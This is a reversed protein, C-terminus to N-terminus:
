TNKTVIVIDQFSLYVNRGSWSGYSIPEVVSLDHKKCLEQVFDEDYAVADEPSNDDNIRYRDREFQFAFRSLKKQIYDQSEENLLFFTMLCTGDAKMVRSIESMYNEIDEPLMHTFVSTLFIFDFSNKEYPFKFESAKLNGNPNYTKNYNDVFNFNFNPFRPTINKSAWDIGESLVDFGEYSGEDTLYGTLAVAMRGIGCGVDLVSDTPKLNGLNIFYKLFEEGVANFNEKAGVLVRLRRPPFMPGRQGSLWDVCDMTSHYIRKPFALKLSSRPKPM